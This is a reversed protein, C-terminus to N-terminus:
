QQQRRNRKQGGHHRSVPCRFHVGHPGQVVLLFRLCAARSVDHLCCLDLNVGVLGPSERIPCFPTAIMKNVAKRRCPLM